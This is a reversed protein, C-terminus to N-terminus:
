SSSGGEGVDWPLRLEVRFASEQTVVHMSANEGYLATLRQRVNQMGLGTGRRAAAGPERPNEISIVIREGGGRARVAVSGGELMNAVGHTIANEVLPQLILPPVLCGGLGEEVAVEVLLRTGFRVKEIALLRQAMEMEQDLRIRVRGGLSLSGRLFDALLVCLRRAAEPDRAILANISNLSNFLFHPHIQARLAKLEADRTLLDLELARKEARRSTEVAGLGYHVASSLLFLLVAVAFLAPMARALHERFAAVAEPRVALGVLAWAAALWALASVVATGAHTGAIRVWTALRLPAAQCLYFATLCVFGWGVGLPLTFWLRGWWSVGPANLVLALAAALLVWLGLYLALRLRSALLPHM